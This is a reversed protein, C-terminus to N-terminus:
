DSEGNKHSEKEVLIIWPNALASGRDRGMKRYHRVHPNWLVLLFTASRRNPSVKM